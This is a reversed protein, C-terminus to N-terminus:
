GFLSSPTNTRSNTPLGTATTRRSPFIGVNQSRPSMKEEEKKKSVKVYLMQTNSLICRNKTKIKTITFVSRGCLSKQSSECGLNRLASGSALRRVM